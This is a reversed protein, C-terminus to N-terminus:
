GKTATTAAVHASLQAEIRAVFGLAGAQSAIEAFREDRMQTFTDDQRGLLAANGGLPTSRGLALIQRLFMAEFGQAAKHLRAQEASPAAPASPTARAGSLPSTATM